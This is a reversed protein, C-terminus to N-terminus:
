GVSRFVTFQMYIYIHFNFVSWMGCYKSLHRKPVRGNMGDNFGILNLLFIMKASNLKNLHSGGVMVYLVGIVCVGNGEFIVGGGM